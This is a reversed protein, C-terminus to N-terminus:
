LTGERPPLVLPSPEDTNVGIDWTFKRPEYTEVGDGRDIFKRFKIIPQLMAGYHAILKSKREEAWQNRFEKKKWGTINFIEKHVVEPDNNLIWQKVKDYEWKRLRDFTDDENM